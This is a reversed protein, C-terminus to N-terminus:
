KKQSDTEPAFPFQVRIRSNHALIDHYMQLYESNPMRYPLYTNFMRQYMLNMDPVYPPTPLKASAMHPFMVQNGNHYLPPQPPVSPIRAASPPILDKSNVFDKFAFEKPAFDKPTVFEKPVSPAQPIYQISAEFDKKPASIASRPRDIGDSRPIKVSSTLFNESITRKRPLGSPKQFVSNNGLSLRPPNGLATPKGVLTIELNANLKRGDLPHHPTRAYPLDNDLYSYPIQAPEMTPKQPSKVTLDLIGGGTTPRTAEPFIPAQVQHITPQFLDKPDGYVTKESPIYISKSQLVKPPNHGNVFRREQYVVGREREKGHGGASEIRKPNIMPPPMQKRDNLAKSTSNSNVMTSNNRIIEVRHHPAAAQQIVSPRIEKRVPTVELGGQKLIDLKQQKVDNLVEGGVGIKDMEVISPATNGIINNNNNHFNNSLNNNNNPTFNNNTNHNNNINNSSVNKYVDSELDLDIIEPCEAVIKAPIEIIEVLQNKPPEFIPIEISEVPSPSKDQIKVQAPTAATTIPEVNKEVVKNVLVKNCVEVEKLEFEKNEKVELDNIDKFDNIEKFNNIEKIEKCDNIEKFDNIEKVEKIEEGILDEVDKFVNEKKGTADKLRDSKVRVSRLSSTKGKELIGVVDKLEGILNHDITPTLPTGHESGSTGESTTDLDSTSTSNSKCKLRRRASVPLPKHKEGKLHREYPLLFREYHRRMVTAASTSTHNGGLDEFISKWLRNATVSDYGGLKQVKTYFAYLDLERYGLCPIRGIPTQNSKMFEKVKKLFSREYRDELTRKSRRTSISGNVAIGNMFEDLHTSKGSSTSPQGNNVGYISSESENSESGPSTSRKKRRGRPRGKLKPALHNCLMEHGELEPYDFTDRCFLIRTNLSPVCFGGLANVIKMKLYVDEVGELRMMMARYRCYRPYSLIVVSPSKDNYKSDSPTTKKEVEVDSLDLLGEGLNISMPVADEPTKVIDNESSSNELTRGLRGWSWETDITIWTILDEVRLVVKESIALVEDFSSVEGHDMRGEPTNEPLFYLRLSALVQESNKDVWLLQLEGICVLDSDIWLKVFFFESLTMVRKIGNKTYRFAKYFTYPGHQGCPGGVLQIGFDM